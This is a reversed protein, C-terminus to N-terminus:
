TNPAEVAGGVPRASAVAHAVAGDLEGLTYPLPLSGGAGMQTARELGGPSAPRDLVIVPPSSPRDRLWELVTWGDRVSMMVDLIVVDIALAALRGLAWDADAALATSHGAAHLDRRLLLMTDPEDVVILVLAVVDFPLAAARPGRRWREASPARREASPAV